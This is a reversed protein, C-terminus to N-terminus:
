DLSMQSQVTELIQFRLSRCFGDIGPFLTASTINMRRLREMGELRLHAPIVFKKCIPENLFVAYNGLIDQFPQDIQSPVLFLGQQIVLRENGNEPDFVILFTDKSTFIKQKLSKFDKANMTERNIKKMATHNFAFVSCEGSGAELAFYTAIHPSFTVDFLRTPAGYHQMVALWELRNKTDPLFRLYLNADRQFRKILLSEHTKEAFKRTSGKAAEIIPQMDAFLRDLSTKLPWKADAQGRYLWDRGKLLRLEQDFEEWSNVFKTKWPEYNNPMNTSEKM